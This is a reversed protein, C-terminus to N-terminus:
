SGRSGNRFFLRELSQSTAEMARAASDAALRGPFRYAYPAVDVEYGGEAFAEVTPLYGICGDSVSAFLTREAPSAAKVDLGIETFVESGYTVLALDGIRAANIRLPVSWRGELEGEGPALRARWPYRRALLWDTLPWMFGPLGAMDLLRRRYTTPPEPSTVPADFALPLETRVLGLPAGQLRDSRDRAAEIVAAAVREGQERVLDWVGERAWGMAPNLNATAGQLFLVSGGLGAEARTRM